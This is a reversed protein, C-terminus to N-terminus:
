VIVTIVIILEGKNDKSIAAAVKVYDGGTFYGITASWDGQITLHAPEDISGHQLCQLIQQSSVRRQFMRKKAHDTLFMSRAQLIERMHLLFNVDNLIFPLTRVNTM